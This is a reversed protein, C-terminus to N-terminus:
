GLGLWKPNNFTGDFQHSTKFLEFKGSQAADTTRALLKDVQEQDLPKFTRIAEFAQELRQMSDIGNIVVSTPLNLAYHLCEIANVKQSQLIIGSGLPKMGLVGIGEKVLVPLVEHAFSHFHADMVNLPMQVTDFHFNRSRATELMKLHIKPDKHGTFGIYRIKGAKKAEQLAEIAGGERFVREPDEPRIMEHQQMLDLHDTRLRQLSEDIQKAASAKTQGDIKSMLFVKKRYGDQLARGMWEESKGDHYDWCNDMFTVGRDIATRILRSSEEFTPVSGIHYGGLGIASVKEGTRGLTRYIMEGERVQALTMPASLAVGTAVTAKLFDRRNVESWIVHPVSSMLEEGGPGNEAQGCHQAIGEPLL